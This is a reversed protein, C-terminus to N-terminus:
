ASVPKNISKRVSILIPLAAMVFLIATSGFLHSPVTFFSGSSYIMMIM